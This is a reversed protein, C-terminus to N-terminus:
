NVQQGDVDVKKMKISTFDSIPGLSVNTIIKKKLFFRVHRPNDKKM